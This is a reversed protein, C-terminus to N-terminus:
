KGEEPGRRPDALLRLGDWGRTLLCVLPTGHASGFWSALVAVGKERVSGCESVSGWKGCAHLWFSRARVVLPAAAAALVRDLVWSREWTWPRGHVCSTADLPAVEPSFDCVPSAWFPVNWSTPVVWAHQVAPPHDKPLKRLGRSHGHKRREAGTHGDIPPSCAGVQPGM